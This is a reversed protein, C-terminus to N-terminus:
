AHILQALVPATAPRVGRWLRFAEAAQEVLMGIGQHAAAAGHARAWRTFSTEGHGYAMDYCITEPGIVAPTVAPVEGALSAATANIVVDFPRAEVDGFGSAVM